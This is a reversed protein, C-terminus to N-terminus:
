RNGRQCRYRGNGGGQAFRNCDGGSRGRRRPSGGAPGRRVVLPAADRAEAGGATRAVVSLGYRGPRLARPATVTAAGPGARRVFRTALGDAGRVAFRLRARESAFVSLRPRRGARMSYRARAFGATFRAGLEVPGGSGPAGGGGAPAGAAPGPRGAADYFIGIGNPVTREVSQRPGAEVGEGGDSTQNILSVSSAGPQRAVMTASGGGDLHLAEVAGLDLMLKAFDNTRSMGTTMVQRGDVVVLLLTRRDAGAFGIGTRPYFPRNVNEKPTDEIFRGDRVLYAVGGVAFKFPTPLPFQFTPAFAAGVSSGPQLAALREAGAERGLLEFGDGPILGSRPGDQVSEVVGNRVLASRVPASGAKEVPRERAREGWRNTYLGVGDAPLRFRNVGALPGPGSPLALSGTFGADGVRGSEDAVIGATRVGGTESDDDFSKLLEGGAIATGNPVESDGSDFFDGNVGAFAGARDAMVTMKERAAVAGPFLLDATIAPSSLDARLVHVRARENGVLRTFEELELGPALTTQTREIDTAPSPPLGPPIPLNTDSQATATGPLLALLVAAATGLRLM